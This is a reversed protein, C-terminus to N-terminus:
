GEAAPALHRRLAPIQGTAFLTILEPIRLHPVSGRSLLQQRTVPLFGLMKRRESFHYHVIAGDSRPCIHLIHGPEAVFGIGPPCSERQASALERELAAEEHWDHAQFARVAAEPGVPDFDRTSFDARQIWYSVRM